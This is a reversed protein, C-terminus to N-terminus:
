TKSSYYPSISEHIKTFCFVLENELWDNIQQHDDIFKKIERLENITSEVSHSLSPLSKMKKITQGYESIRTAHM